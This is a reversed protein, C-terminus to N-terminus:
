HHQGFVMCASNPGNFSFLKGYRKKFDDDFKFPVFDSLDDGEKLLRIESSDEKNLEEFSKGECTTRMTLGSENKMLTKKDKFCPTFHSTYSIVEMPAKKELLDLTKAPLTGFNMDYCHIMEHCLTSLLYAFTGKSHGETNLFIADRNKKMM